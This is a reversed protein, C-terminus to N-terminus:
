MIHSYTTMLLVLINSYWPSHRNTVSVTKVTQLILSHAGERELFAFIMSYSYSTHQHKTQHYLWTTMHVVINSYQIGCYQAASDESYTCLSTTILRRREILLAWRFLRSMKVTKKTTKKTKQKTKKQVSHWKKVISKKEGVEWCSGHNLRDATANFLYCRFRCRIGAHFWRWM